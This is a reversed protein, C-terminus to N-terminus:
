YASLLRPSLATQLAPDFIEITIPRLGFTGNGGSIKARPPGLTNKEELLSITESWERTGPFSRTVSHSDPGSPTLAARETIVEHILSQTVIRQRDMEARSAEWRSLYSRLAAFQALFLALGLIAITTSSLRIRFSIPKM